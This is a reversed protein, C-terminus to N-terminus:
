QRTVPTFSRHQIVMWLSRLSNRINDALNEVMQATVLELTPITLQKKPLRSKSAILGQKTGPPQWIVAYPVAYTELLSADGFVHIDIM